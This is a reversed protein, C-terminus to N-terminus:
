LACIRSRCFHYFSIYFYQKSKQSCVNVLSVNVQLWLIYQPCSQAYPARHTHDSQPPGPAPTGVGRGQVTGHASGAMWIVAVLLLPLFRGCAARHDIQMCVSWAAAKKTHELPRKCHSHASRWASSWRPGIAPQERMHVAWRTATGLSGPRM